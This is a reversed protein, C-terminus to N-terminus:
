RRASSSCRILLIMNDDAALELANSWRTPTISNPYDTTQLFPCLVSVVVLKLETRASSTGEEPLGADDGGGEPPVVIRELPQKEHM